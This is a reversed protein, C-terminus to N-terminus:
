NIIIFIIYIIIEIIFIFRIISPPPIILNLKGSVKAQATQLTHDAKYLAHGTHLSALHIHSVAPIRGSGPFAFPV